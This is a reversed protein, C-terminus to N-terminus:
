LVDRVVGSAKEQLAELAYEVTILRKEADGTKGLVKTEFPRLMAMKFKDMQLVFVSRPRQFRNPVVKLTGFDSVYVDIAATLSKDESKDFKTTGGTFTSFTQKQLPGVMVTDPDGGQTFVQQLVNKLLSETFARQTGDTAATNTIYNPAVGTAGLDSNTAIWGELGRTQRGISASGVVATGNQTLATEIDRKLELSRLSIQYALENKRGAPNMGSTQTDSVVVSKTSIQTRNNLRVTAIPATFTSVDDGEIQANNSAATLDQTQWEHLTNSAKSKGIGSMFPTTTPSIRTIIDSLDERNGVANYSQLTNTPSAM